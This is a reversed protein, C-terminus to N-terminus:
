QTQCYFLSWKNLYDQSEKTFSTYRNYGGKSKYDRVRIELEDINIDKMRLSCIEDIRMGSHAKLLFFAKSRIDGYQLILELESPSPTKKEATPQPNVLQNRTKLSDWFRNPL